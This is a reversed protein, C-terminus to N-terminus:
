INCFFKSCIYFYLSYRDNSDREVMRGLFTTTLDHKEIAFWNLSVQIQPANVHVAKSIFM